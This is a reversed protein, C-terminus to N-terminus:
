KNTISYIILIFLIWIVTQILLSIIAFSIQSTVQIRSSLTLLALFSRALCFGVSTAFTKLARDSSVLTLIAYTKDMSPSNHTQSTAFIISDEVAVADW